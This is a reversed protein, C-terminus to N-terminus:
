LMKCFMIRYHKIIHESFVIAYFTGNQSNSIGYHLMNPPIFLAEGKNIIYNQNQITIELSGEALYLLEYEPHFHLYLSYSERGSFDTRHVSYPATNTIHPVKELLQKSLKHKM